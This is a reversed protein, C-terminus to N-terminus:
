VDNETDDPEDTELRLYVTNEDVWTNLLADEISFEVPETGPSITYDIAPPM